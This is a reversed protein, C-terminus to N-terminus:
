TKDLGGRANVSHGLAYINKAANEDRDHKVGCDCTWERVDLSLSEVVAGCANCLKSSPFFRDIAVLQRGYRACKYTLM